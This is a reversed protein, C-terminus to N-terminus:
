GHGDTALNKIEMGPDVSRMLTEGILFGGYGLIKLELLDERTRLGSEAIMCSGEPAYNILERSVDLSVAFDNLNRNNVGILTAGIKKVRELETLTHVEVLADLGLENEAIGHLKILADDDLMAAILLIADAGAQAAEYIQFPDFIFDKRLIPLDVAARVNRLDDLSGKFFDEETLISLAAAGGDAYAQTTTVPDLSDNIVGKSPSAKKFEAIINIRNTEQLASPLRRSESSSRRELALDRLRVADVRRKAEEVRLRKAAFIKDLITESM